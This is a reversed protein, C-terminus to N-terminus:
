EKEFINNKLWQYYNINKKNIDNIFFNNETFKKYVISINEISVNKLNQYDFDNKFYNSFKELYDETYYYKWYKSSGQQVTLYKNKTTEYIKNTISDIFNQNLIKKDLETIFDKKLLVGICNLIKDINFLENGEVPDLYFIRPGFGIINGIIFYEYYGFNLEIKNSEIVNDYNLEPIEQYSTNYLFNINNYEYLSINFKWSYELGINNVQPLLEKNKNKYSVKFNYLTNNNNINKLSIYNNFEKILYNDVSCDFYLDFKYESDGVIIKKVNKGEREIEIDTRNLNIIEFNKFSLCIKKFYEISNKVNLQYCVNKYISFNHIDSTFLNFDCLNLVPCILRNLLGMDNLNNNYFYNKLIVYTNLDQKIYDDLDHIYQYNYNSKSNNHQYSNSIKYVSGTNKLFDPIDIEMLNLLETINDTCIDLNKSSKDSDILTVRVNTNNYLLFLCTLISKLNCDFICINKM